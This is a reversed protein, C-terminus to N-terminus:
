EAGGELLAAVAANKVEGGHTLLMAAVIPDELDLRVEGKSAVLLVVELVNRAYLASADAAVTAPLNTRGIILVGGREVDQGPVTLECNGGQEAALDVIVAGPRMAEVMEATILTPAPKGPVQATAIAADAKALHAKLIERQRSLFEASAQRAYGGATEAQELEPLEIFRAGLSQVQERVAPRVDSVEVVAGLRHATAVAQLGAVGAGLVVFRAPQVTGAATMMLPLQKDLHTAALLAAKYGALSAQSSLADIRQARSIRPVLEMALASVGRRALTRVTELTRFPDLLGVVVAGEQLLSAEDGLEESHFPSSVRLALDAGLLARRPDTALAAGAEEYRQDPIHAGAGAGAEVVVSLGEKVM